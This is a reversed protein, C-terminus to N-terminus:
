AQRVAREIRDRAEPPLIISKPDPAQPDVFCRHVVEQLFRLQRRCRRCARCYVLHLRVAWRYPPPLDRDLSESILRTIEECSCFLFRVMELVM